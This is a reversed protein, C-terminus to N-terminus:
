RDKLFEDLPLLIKRPKSGDPPGVIGREELIDMLRGARAYGIKLRRQLMSASAQGTERISKLAEYILEDDAEDLDLGEEEKEMEPNIEVKFDPLPQKSWFEVLREIEKSEVLAGQIRRPEAADIPLYLMDGKGLLKEAGVRDLIVRSDIQSSVAFAIRSPINAKILGTIVDVSPRQTAIILHIGSARGLQALRCIQTEVTSSSIMMLDALEDVVVIIYPVPPLEGPKERMLQHYESLNRVRLKSFSEYREDMIKTVQKLVLTAIKPDTVIQRDKGVKTEVLHPLNEYVSLEVRKPDIMVFQAELPTLSFLLSCIVTNLCVTKGSGTAGAILLHPMKLLDDVVPKGTIDKGLALSFKGRNKCEPTEMIERMSVVDIRENPIEVGIVSKGPVPAEIRISYAALGLAIDQALNTIKSVKVGRAPQLEYRTVSPGRAINVVKAEVGFSALTDVLIESYDISAKKRASPEVQNLLATPPLQYVPEGNEGRALPEIVPMIYPESNSKPAPTKKERKETLKETQLPLTEFANEIFNKPKPTYVSKLHNVLWLIFEWCKALLKQLFDAAQKLTGPVLVAFLLLNLFIVTLAGGASGFIQRPWIGLITGMVGSKIDWLFLLTQTSIFLFISYAFILIPRPFLAPLILVAGWFFLFFPLIYINLGVLWDFFKVATKGFDGMQEPCIWLLAIYIGLCTLIIGFIEEGLPFKKSGAKPPLKKTDNVVM